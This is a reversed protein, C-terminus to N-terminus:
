SFNDNWSFLFIVLEPNALSLHTTLLANILMHIVILITLTELSAM